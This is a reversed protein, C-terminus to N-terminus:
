SKRLHYRVADDFGSQARAGLANRIRMSGPGTARNGRAGLAPNGFLGTAVDFGLRYFVDGSAGRASAVGVDARAIAGGIAALELNRNRELSFEVALTYGPREAPYLADHIRQKGPGPATEHEAIAIGIDFGLRAPGPAVQNRLETLL